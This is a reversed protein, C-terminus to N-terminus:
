HTELQELNCRYYEHGAFFIGIVEDFLENETLVDDSLLLRELVNLQFDKMSAGDKITERALVLRKELKEVFLRRVNM